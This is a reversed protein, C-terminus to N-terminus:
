LSMLNRVAEVIKQDNPLVYNELVPNFPIPTDLAAVRRIPADLEDLVEEAIMAGIEGGVGGRKPGEEVIVVRHTQRVSDLITKTDLPVLTRPDLVTVQVGDKELQGAAKLAELVMRGIAVITLDKGQRHIRAEGFPILYEEEPV